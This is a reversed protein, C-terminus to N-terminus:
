IGWYTIADMVGIVILIIGTVKQVVNGIEKSRKIILRKTNFLEMLSFLILLPVSTAIGFIAPLIFGYSTTVVVPMLWVFFLVFMTPCFALSFSAGLLFSGLRGEKMILPMHTSLRTIIRLKFLGLLVLGTIVLLPGIAKRLLPFYTTMETEFSQGFFWALWGIVSFVMVKGLIFYTIESWINEKQITRNGYFTIASINGTLQCPAFAGIFGLLLAMIFPSHEYSTLFLSIPKSIMGSLESLLGYM